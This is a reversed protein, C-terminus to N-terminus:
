GWGATSPRSAALIDEARQLMAEMREPWDPDNHRFCEPALQLLSAARYVQAIAVNAPRPLYGDLLSAALEGVRSSTLTGRLFKRDLQAMFLGIDAMPNARVARDFDLLWVNGSDILVQKAYFDGHIPSSLAPREMLRNALMEALQRARRSLHPCLFGLHEAEYVLTRAETGPARSKLGIPDQAHLEAIAAGVARMTGAEFSPDDIADSLLRATLWEYALVGYRDSSGIRPALRLSGRPEFIRSNNWATAYNRNTYFKLVAWPKDAASLKAVYRREPKYVLEELAADEVRSRHCGLVRRIMRNRADAHPLRRLSKIRPDNPFLSVLVGCDEFVVSDGRLPLQAHRRYAKATAAVTADGLEIRYGVLCNTRPKYKIYTIRGGRLDAEPLRRRMADVFADADFLTALGPILKDRRVLDAEAKPLM